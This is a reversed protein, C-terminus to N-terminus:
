AQTEGETNTMQEHIGKLKEFLTSVISLDGAKFVGRQTAADIIGIINAIDGHTLEM